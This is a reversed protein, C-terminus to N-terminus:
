GREYEKRLTEIDIKKMQLIAKMVRQSKAPNSDSLMEVAATPVIQWSLGYKDKLWGCQRANPDGGESLRSWFHDVEVQSECNVVFSVAETFKFHPGGNLATFRQGDLEFTVVMVSGEPRGSARAGAEDYRAITGLKSQRSGSTSFVSVYFNAAEEAQTDFWLFPTIKQM